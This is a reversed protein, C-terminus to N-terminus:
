RTGITPICQGNSPFLGEPCQCIGDNCLLDGLCTEGNICTEEYNVSFHFFTKLM